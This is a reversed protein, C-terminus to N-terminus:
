YTKYNREYDKLNRIDKWFVLLAVAVILLIVGLGLGFKNWKMIEM